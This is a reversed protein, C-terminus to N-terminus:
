LCDVQLLVNGMIIYTKISFSNFPSSFDCKSLSYGENIVENTNNQQMVSEGHIGLFEIEHLFFFAEFSHLPCFFHLAWKRLDCGKERSLMFNEGKCKKLPSGESKLGDICFANNLFLIPVKM